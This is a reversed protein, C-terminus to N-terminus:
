SMVTAAGVPSSGRDCLPRSVRRSVHVGGVDANFDSDDANEM